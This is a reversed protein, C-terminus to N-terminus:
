NTVTKTLQIKKLSIQSFECLIEESTIGTLVPVRNINGEFYDEYMPRIIYANPWSPDELVPRWYMGALHIEM